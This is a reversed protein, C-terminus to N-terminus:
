SHLRQHPLLKVRSSQDFECSRSDDCGDNIQQWCTSSHPDTTHLFAPQNASIPASPAANPTPAQPPPLYMAPMVGTPTATTVPTAPQKNASDPPALTPGPVPTSAARVTPAAPRAAGGNSGPNPLVDPIPKNLTGKEGPITNESNIIAGPPLQQRIADIEPNNSNPVPGAEGENPLPIGEGRPDYDPYVVMSEHQSWKDNRAKLGSPGHIRVVDSLCWSMRSSEVQKILEADQQTRVIRPTLIILLENRRSETSDYRFLHGLLPIDSLFPARRSFDAKSKSILGGLIITQGNAASVTTQAVSTNFRPSRVVEGTANVFIPVGEAEPGVESKEADVEMVVLGDPSIRPTVGLILGVNELTVSNNQIGLNVSVNTIRPVRQGVQIFAPQNDLTMIQPRSLVELRRNASLARLLVSLNESSASLVLGGFGLTSNTRGLAFSSIGQSGM